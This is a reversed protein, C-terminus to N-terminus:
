ACRIDASAEAPALRGQFSFMDVDPPLLSLLPASEPTRMRLLERGHCSTRLMFTKHRDTGQVVFEFVSHSEIEFLREELGVSHGTRPTGQRQKVADGRTGPAIELGLAAGDKRELARTRRSPM